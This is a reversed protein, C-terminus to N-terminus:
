KRTNVAIPRSRGEKEREAVVRPMAREMRQEAMKLAVDRPVGHREADDTIVKIRRDRTNRFDIPM